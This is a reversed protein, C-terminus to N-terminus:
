LRMTKFAKNVLGLMATYTTATAVRENTYLYIVNDVVEINVEFPLAELQEMYNPELLEFSTAQEESSAYVEYKKNFQTWETEVRKLGRIPLQVMKKRRVVINGYQRPVNIQAIVYPKSNNQPDKVYNYLQVLLQDNYMGVVHNNIDSSGFKAGNFLQGRKPIFLWGMDLSYCYGNDRAFNRLEPNQAYADATGQDIAGLLWIKGKRHFTWSEVFTSNDTFLKQDMQAEILRDTASASFTVTVFDSDNHVDDWMNTVAMNNIVVHEMINKRGMLQLTYMLLSAHYHYQPTMYTKMSETNFTSWDQQYKLFTAKAHELIAQEDWAADVAAAQKLKGKILPSQKVKDFWNYLGAPMGVLAGIAILFGMAPWIFSWAVGYGLTAVWGLTNLPVTAAAHKAFVKRLLSGAFHTPLYGLIFALGFIGSGGGSGGSGGGGGGSGGGGGRAFQELLLAIDHPIIDM